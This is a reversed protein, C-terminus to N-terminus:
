QALEAAATTGNETKPDLKIARDYARRGNRRDGEAMRARAVLLWAAQQDAVSLRRRDLVTLGLSEASPPRSALLLEGRLILSNAATRPLARVRRIAEARQGSSLLVDLRAITLEGSTTPAPTPTPPAPSPPVVIAGKLAAIERRVLVDTAAALKSAEDVAATAGRADGDQVALAGLGLEARALQGPSCQAGLKQLVGGLTERARRRAADDGMVISLRARDILAGLHNANDSLARAFAADARDFRRQQWEVVGLAHAALPDLPRDDLVRAFSSNAGALQGGVVGIWGVLYRSDVDAHAGVLSSATLLDGKDLAIWARALRKDDGDKGAGASRDLLAQAPAPDVGFEWALQGFIRAARVLDGMREARSAASQLDDYNGKLVLQDILHRQETRQHASRLAQIAWVGVVGLAAALLLLGRSPIRSPAPPAAGNVSARQAAGDAASRAAPDEAPLPEFLGARSSRSPVPTPPAGVRGRRDPTPKRARSTTSEAPFPPPADVEAYLGAESMPSEPQVAAPPAPRERTAEDDFDTPGLLAALRGGATGPPDIETHEESGEYLDADGEPVGAKRVVSIEDLLLRARAAVPGRGVLARRLASEAEDFAHQGLLAEGDLLWAETLDPEDALLRVMEVGLEHWRELAALARGTLLRWKVADASEPSASLRERCLKLAEAYRADAM